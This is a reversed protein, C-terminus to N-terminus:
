ENCIVIKSYTKYTKFEIKKEKLLEELTRYLVSTHNQNLTIILLTDKVNIGRIKEADNLINFFKINKFQLIKNLYLEHGHDARIVQLVRDRIIEDLKKM